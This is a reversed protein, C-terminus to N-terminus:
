NLLSILLPLVSHDHVKLEHGSKFTLTCKTSVSQPVPAGANVKVPLLPTFKDKVLNLKNEWYYFQSCIIGHKRCYAAGSLRSQQKLKIHENWYQHNKNSIKVISNLSTTM